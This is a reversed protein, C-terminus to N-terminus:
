RSNLRQKHIYWPTLFEVLGLWIPECSKIKLIIANKGVLVGNVGLYSTDIELSYTRSFFVEICPLGKKTKNSMNINKMCM